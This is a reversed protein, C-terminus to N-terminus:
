RHGNWHGTDRLVCGLVRRPVDLQREASQTVVMPVKAPPLAPLTEVIQRNALEGPKPTGIVDCVAVTFGAERLTKISSDAAHFPFGAMPVGGRKTLTVNLAKAGKLADDFFMEYFGGLRMVMIGEPAKAKLEKWQEFMQM